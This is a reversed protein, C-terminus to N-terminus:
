KLWARVEKPLPIWQRPRMRAVQARRLTPQGAISDLVRLRPVDGGVEGLAKQWDDHRADAGGPWFATWSLSRTGM